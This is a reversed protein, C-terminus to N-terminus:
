RTAEGTAFPSDGHRRNFLVHVLADGRGSRVLGEFLAGLQHDLALDAGGDDERLADDYMKLDLYGSAYEIHKQVESKM